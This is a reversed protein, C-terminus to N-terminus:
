RALSSAITFSRDSRDNVARDDLSRVEVKYNSGDALSTPVTWDFSGDSPTSAAIVAALTNGNFLRIKVNGSINDTWTVTYTNGKTWREMGNPSAVTIMPPTSAEEIMTMRQDAVLNTLTQVIGSPWTVEVQSVITNTNLGFYAALDSGGGLSDGSRTEWYQVAGDLTTLKIKAGIGDRNSLPPGAGQLDLILWHHGTTNAHDNRYLHVPEGYNVLFLDPDGDGDYDGLVVTRGRGSDTFGSGASVDTFSIGNGDNHYLLNPQPDATSTGITGASVCLDLFGDLDYDFFITGWTIRKKGTEPVVADALGAAATVDTFTGGANHLLLPSRFNTYFYDYWGDRDYDGVAIGMGNRCDAAGVSASVETFNWALPNSGGDNRFLKTGVPGYPCDNILFIDLDGDQDYDTWGAIFGFGGLNDDFGDGNADGGLLLFSVDSFTGNGNNHFLRDQTGAGTGKVEKHNAVYLDLFGDKDYDGWSASAGRQPTTIGPFATATVDTFTATGTETLQNKLFVDDNSNALYLDLDGDNDFDSAAVGSGDHSADAVGLAAAVDVFVGGGDNRWLHNAGVRNTMYLDLDGDRDYDFWAAGTGIRPIDAVASVAHSVNGLTSFTVDTFVTQAKSAFCTLGLLLISLYATSSRM